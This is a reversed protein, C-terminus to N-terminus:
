DRGEIERGAGASGEVTSEEAKGGGRAGEKVSSDGGIGGEAEGVEGCLEKIAHAAEAEAGGDESGVREEM